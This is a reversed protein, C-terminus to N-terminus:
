GVKIGGQYGNKCQSGKSKCSYTAASPSSGSRRGRWGRSNRPFNTLPSESKWNPREYCKGMRELRWQVDNKIEGGGHHSPFNQISSSSIPELWLNHSFQKLDPPIFRSNIIPPTVLGSFSTVLAELFRSFQKTVHPCM